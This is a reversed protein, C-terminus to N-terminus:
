ANVGITVKIASNLRKKSASKFMQVLNSAFSCALEINERRPRCMTWWASSAIYGLLLLEPYEREMYWQIQFPSGDTLPPFNYHKLYVKSWATVMFTFLHKLETASWPLLSERTTLQRTLPNDQKEEKITSASLHVPSWCPWVGDVAVM